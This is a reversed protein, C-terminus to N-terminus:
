GRVRIPARHYRRARFGQSNHKYGWFPGGSTYTRVGFTQSGSEMRTTQHVDPDRTYFTTPSGYYGSYGFFPPFGEAKAAGSLLVGAAVAGLALCRM